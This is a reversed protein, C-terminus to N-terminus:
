PSRTARTESRICSESGCRIVATLAISQPLAGTAKELSRITPFSTIGQLDAASFTICKRFERFASHRDSAGIDYAGGAATSDIYELAEFDAGHDLVKGAQSEQAVAIVQALPEALGAFHPPHDFHDFRARVLSFAPTAFLFVPATARILAQDQSQAAFFGDVFGAQVAFPPAYEVLAAPRRDSVTGHRASEIGRFRLIVWAKKATTSFCHGNRWFYALVLESEFLSLSKEACAASVQTWTLPV